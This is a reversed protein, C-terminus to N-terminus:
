LARRTALRVDDFRSLANIDILRRIEKVYAGRRESYNVIEKALDYGDPDVGQARMVARAKRFQEYAANTNLNATYSKVADTLTAFYKVRYNKAEESQAPGQGDITYQGFLAKGEHAIRSTGWGSELAAQAVALSPPVVDVRRLLEDFDADQDLGYGVSVGHLWAADGDKLRHARVFEERLNRIRDRDHAITENVHLVLPLVMQIFTLKRVDSDPMDPLDPPLTALYVRPVLGGARVTDLDYGFRQFVAALKAVSSARVTVHEDSAVPAPPPPAAPLPIVEFAQDWTDPPIAPVRPALNAVLTAAVMVASVLVVRRELGVIVRRAAFSKWM